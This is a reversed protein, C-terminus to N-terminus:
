EARRRKCPNENRDVFGPALELSKLPAWPDGLTTRREATATLLHHWVGPLGDIAQPTQRRLQARSPALANFYLPRVTYRLTACATRASGPGFGDAKLDAGLKAHDVPYGKFLAKSCFCPATAVLRLGPDRNLSPDDVRTTGPCNAHSWQLTPVAVAVVQTFVPCFETTLLVSTPNTSLTALVFPLDPFSGDAVLATFTRKDAADVRYEVTVHGVTPMKCVLAGGFPVHILSSNTTRAYVSIDRASGTDFERDEVGAYDLVIQSLDFLLGKKISVRCWAWAAPMAERASQKLQVFLETYSDTQNQRSTM